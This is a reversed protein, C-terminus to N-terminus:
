ELLFIVNNERLVREVDEEQAQSLCLEKVVASKVILCLCPRLNKVAQHLIGVLGYPSTLSVKENEPM